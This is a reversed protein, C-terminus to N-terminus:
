AGGALAALAATMEGVAFTEIMDAGRAALALAATPDAVEYVVLRSREQRLSGAAPLIEM